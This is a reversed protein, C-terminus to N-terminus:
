MSMTYMWLQVRKEEGPHWGCTSVQSAPKCHWMRRVRVWDISLDLVRVAESVTLCSPTDLLGATKTLSREEQLFQQAPAPIGLLEQLEEWMVDSSGRRLIDSDLQYALMLVQPSLPPLPWQHELCTGVQAICSYNDLLM